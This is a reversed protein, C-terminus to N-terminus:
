CHTSLSLPNGPAAILSVALVSLLLLRLTTKMFRHTFSLNHPSFSASIGSELFPIPTPSFHSIGAIRLTLRSFPSTQTTKSLPSSPHSPPSFPISLSSIILSPTTFTSHIHIHPLSYMRAIPLNNEMMEVRHCSYCNIGIVFCFVFPISVFCVATAGRGWM